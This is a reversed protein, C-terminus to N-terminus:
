SKFGLKWYESTDNATAPVLIASHKQVCFQGGAQHQMAKRKNINKEAAGKIGKSKSYTHRYRM